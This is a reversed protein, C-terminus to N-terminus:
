RKFEAGHAGLTRMILLPSNHTSDAPPKVARQSRQHKLIRSVPPPLRFLPRILHFLFFSILIPPFFSALALLSSFFSTPFSPSSLSPIPLSKLFCVAVISLFLSLLLLPSLFKPLVLHIFSLLFGPPFISHNFLTSVFYLFTCAPSSILFFLLYPTM